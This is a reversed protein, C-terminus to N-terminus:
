WYWLAVPVHIALLIGLAVSVPVHV